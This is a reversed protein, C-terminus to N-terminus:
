MLNWLDHRRGKRQLLGDLVAVSYAKLQKLKNPETSLTAILRLLISPLTQTYLRMGFYKKAILIRNRVDYYRKWPPIAICTFRHGLFNVYYPYSSPHEIQSNGAIYIKAGQKQARVSYEVDDAAIFFEADPLGIKEVLERHVMFGLFPLMKVQAKAPIDAKLRTVIQADGLLEMQWSTHEQNVALSGYVHQPEKAIKMLEELANIHPKADDDMMWVWDADQELAYRMGAYFGGAGGTNDNLALLEFLSKELFGKEKLLNLTGDTSANDVILVKNPLLTQHELADLCEVLLNKRNYTVVITYINM